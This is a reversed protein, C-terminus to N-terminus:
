PCARPAPRRPPPPRPRPASAAAAVAAASRARRRRLRHQAREVTRCRPPRPPRRAALAIWSAFIATSSSSGDSAGYGGAADCPTSSSRGGCASPATLACPRVGALWGRRPASRSHTPSRRPRRLASVTTHPSVTARSCLVSKVQRSAGCQPAMRTGASDLHASCALKPPPPRTHVAVNRDDSSPALCTTHALASHSVLPVPHGGTAGGDSRIASRPFIGGRSAVPDVFRMGLNPGAAPPRPTSKDARRSCALGCRSPEGPTTSTFGIRPCFCPVILCRFIIKHITTIQQLYTSRGTTSTAGQAKCPDRYQRNKARKM